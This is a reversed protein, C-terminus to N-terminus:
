SVAALTSMCAHLNYGQRSLEWACVFCQIVIISGGHMSMRAHLNLGQRSRGWACVFYQVIIAGRGHMGMCVHLNIGQGLRGGHVCFMAHHYCQSWPHEHVCAPQNGTEFVWWACVFCQMVFVSGGHM